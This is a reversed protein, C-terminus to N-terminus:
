FLLAFVFLLIMLLGFVFKMITGGLFGILAGFGAKGAVRLNKGSILEGLFAGILPGLILGIINGIFFGAVGGLIAGIIGSASAGFKKAGISGALFDFLISLVAIVGVVIIIGLGVKELGFFLAYLLAGVFILITGPLIPLITGALGLAMLIIVLIIILIKLFIM